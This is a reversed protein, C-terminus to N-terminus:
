STPRDLVRDAISTGLSDAETVLRARAQDIEAHLRATADAITAEIEARTKVLIEERAALAARRSQDMQRYVEARATTTRAEFEAAAAAAEAAAKEALARASAIAAEREHMVRLLPKFILTNVVAVSALVFVVVWLVSLDPLV